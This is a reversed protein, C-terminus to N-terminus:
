QREQQLAHWAQTFAGRANMPESLSELTDYLAALMLGLPVFDGRLAINNNKCHQFISEFSDTFAQKRFQVATQDGEGFHRRFLPGAEQLGLVALGRDFTDLNDFYFGAYVDVLARHFDADWQHWANKPSWVLQSGTWHLTQPRLDLPSLQRPSLLLAFYLRLVAEGAHRRQQPQLNASQSLLHEGELRKAHEIGLSALPGALAHMQQEFPQKQRLSSALRWAQRSLTKAPVVDFFSPSVLGLLPAFDRHRGALAKLM